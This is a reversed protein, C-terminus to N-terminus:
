FDEDEYDDYGELDEEDLAEILKCQFENQKVVTEISTGAYAKGTITNGECTVDSGMKQKAERCEANLEEQSFGSYVVTM